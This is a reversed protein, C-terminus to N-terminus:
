CQVRTASFPCHRVSPAGFQSLPVTMSGGLSMRLSTMAGSAITMATATASSNGSSATRVSIKPSSLRERGPRIRPVRSSNKARAQSNASVAASNM